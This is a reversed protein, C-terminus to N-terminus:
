SSPRPVGSPPYGALKKFMRNFTSKSNFGCDFAVGVLSYHAYRPDALQAMAARVRYGNVFDSFNCHCGTNIVRSLVGPPLQLAQALEALTLEPRLWPQEDEMLQLLRTHHAQLDGPLAVPEAPLSPSAPFPVPRPESPLTSPKSVSASERPAPSHGAPASLRRIRLAHLPSSVAAYNAQLGVVVLGYILLGQGAYFYWASEFDLVGIEQLGTFLIGLGLGAVQLLLLHRLGAFRLREPNSFHDDLYRYYRRYGALVRLTYALLSAYGLLALPLQAQELVRAADGKTGYFDPLQQQHLGRWWLLDYGAAVAFLAVQLLGPLLHRLVPQAQGPRTLCRFYLYYAPGLLLAPQWPIYFMITTHADHSDYWGAFGLLWQAVSLTPLWLLLALWADPPTARRLARGLLWLSILVGPVVFPLLGSSYGNFRFLM